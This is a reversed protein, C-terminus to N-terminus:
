HIDGKRMSLAHQTLLVVSLQVKRIEERLWLEMKQAM